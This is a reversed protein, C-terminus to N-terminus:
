QNRPIMWNLQKWWNAGDNSQARGKSSRGNIVTATLTELMEKVVEPYKAQLNETESPDTKLNYLQVDPMGYSEKKTPYGWGGSHAVTILKWDGKRIAFSGDSSSHVTANRLYKKNGDFLLPTLDFSDEAENDKLEYGTISAFTAMLDVLSVTQDVVKSKKIKEPWKVIFPVRHGGEYIDSKYGRFEASPYHGKEILEQPKIYPACGNDTTFIVITNDSIGADEITKLVKGIENDVMLVFDGYLNLESKNMFEDSPMVPTHPATMPYYVMFPKDQKAKEEIYGCVRNTFNEFVKAHEFDSSIPGKRWFVMGNNYDPEMRDPVVTARDNEVYIYPAMDLSAAIGYFYDFGRETPGEAIPQSYDINDIGQEVNNWNWGLHWKGICGTNYGQQQLMKSMTTREASILAQDYGGNVAQKLTSRWNYRGTLLSYRSPTSLSSTAHADSFVVGQSALRDINATHIKSKSNLASVDGYGMDDALLIVINPNSAKTQTAILGCSLLILSKIKNQM